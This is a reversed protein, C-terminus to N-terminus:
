LEPAQFNLTDNPNTGELLQSSCDTGPREGLKQHTEQCDKHEKAELLMVGLETKIKM